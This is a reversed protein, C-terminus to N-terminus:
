KKEVIQIRGDLELPHFVNSDGRIAANKLIWNDFMERAQKKTEAHITVCDELKSKGVIGTFYIKVIM